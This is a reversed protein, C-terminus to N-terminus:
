PVSAGPLRLRPSSPGAADAGFFEIMERATADPEELLLWHSAEPLYRVSGPPLLPETLTAAERPIFADREGWVLRVPIPPRLDPPIGAIPVDPARYTHLMTSIANDRAWASKYLALEEESFTGARSTNRLYYSVLFWDGARTILEPVFPWRFVTRFWSVTEEADEPRAQDGARPHPINFIVARRFRDPREFALRWAIGGGVDHGALFAREWGLADLVAVADAALHADTYLAPDPPRDSRNYGRLDPAAVRFGAEALREMQGHWSFWLEPFGHLLLVPAGDQPGALAVHLTLDGAEIRRSDLAVRLRSRAVAVEDVPARDGSRWAALVAVVLGAGVIALTWSAKRM